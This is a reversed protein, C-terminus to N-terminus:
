GEDPVEKNKVILEPMDLEGFISIRTSEGKDSKLQISSVKYKIGDPTEDTETQISIEVINHITVYAM